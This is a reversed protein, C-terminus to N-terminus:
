AELLRKARQHALDTLGPELTPLWAFAEALWEQREAPSVNARPRAERLLRLAEAESLWSMTGPRGSFGWVLCEEALNPTVGPTKLLYRLRLLLLTTRLAVADTRIVASRAAVPAGERPDLAQGLLHEALTTTLPHNRGIYTAFPLHRTAFPQFTIYWEDQGGLRERLAPPLLSTDLRWVGDRAPQLPAGLRQCATRVFREVAEPDGLVAETEELERAVEEPKIAHQAFRTRSVRERDVAEDWQKHIAKVDLEDMEFLSLQRVSTAESRLFLSRLVAEVVSESEAPVPVSIGLDRHIEIAKRILVDLVAGDVPNDQGYILVAKVTPSSQGFRDVRGERQELRNPNWPLDYHVVANFAEQLNIGESLCDTAVLVRRPSQALETVRIQREDETLAGTISIIHIDPWRESLRRRLENAVYDSTAIYRCWIIPHYGEELLRGVVQAVTAVKADGEGRLVAARKAFQRLRRRETERLTRGGEEVVHGPSVDVTAEQDPVDYVYPAFLTDEAEEPERLLAEELRAVRAELAAQAAAPSSMVCRLLALATWYRIRRRFGTLVEGSRVIERAFTYVDQFLRRYESTLLYPAEEPIREPFPTEEGLWRAVDARRRQVFHRALERRKHESLGRMEWREFQPRLLGLLSRFSEEVGSHPTATLMVLHRDPKSALRTLLEYRQQQVRSRGAPRACGHVEDVILFEPCHLEFAHRRRESKAFDM